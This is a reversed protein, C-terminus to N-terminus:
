KNRLENMMFLTIEKNNYKDIEFKSAIEREACCRRNMEGMQASSIATVRLRASATM